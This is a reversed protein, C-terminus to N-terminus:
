NEIRLKCNEILKEIRLNEILNFLNLFQFMSFENFISFEYIQLNHKPKQWFM